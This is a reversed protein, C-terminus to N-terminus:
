PPNNGCSYKSSAYGGVEVAVATSGGLGIGTLAPSGLTVEGVLDGRESVKLGKVVLGNDTGRPRFAFLVLRANAQGVKSTGIKV